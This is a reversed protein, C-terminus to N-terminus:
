ISIAGIAEGNEGSRDELICFFGNAFPGVDHLQIAASEALAIFM